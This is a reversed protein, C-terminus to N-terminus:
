NEGSLYNDALAEIVAGFPVEDTGFEAERARELSKKEDESVRILENRAM